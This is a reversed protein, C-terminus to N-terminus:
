EQDDGKPSYETTSKHKIVGDRPKTLTQQALWNTVTRKTVVPESGPCPNHVQRNMTAHSHNEKM